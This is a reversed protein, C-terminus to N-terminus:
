LYWAGLQLVVLVFAMFLGLGFPVGAYGTESEGTLVPLGIVILTIAVTWAYSM